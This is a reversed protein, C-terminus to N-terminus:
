RHGYDAEWRRREFDLLYLRLQLLSDATNHNLKWNCSPCLLGRVPGRKGHVHAHDVQARRIAREFDSGFSTACAACRGHFQFWLEWFDARTFRSGDLNTIGAKAWGAEREVWYGPSYPDKSRRSHGETRPM